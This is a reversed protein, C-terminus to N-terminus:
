LEAFREHDPQVDPLLPAGHLEVWAHAVFPEPRVSIVLKPRINRRELVTLLTLSRFLCTADMPVPTLTVVVAHALRYAIVLDAGPQDPIAHRRAHARLSAIADSANQSRLLWRVRAYATLIEAGLLTRQVLGLRDIHNPSVPVDCRYRAPVIATKKRSSSLRIIRKPARSSGAPGAARARADDRSPCASCSGFPASPVESERVRPTM